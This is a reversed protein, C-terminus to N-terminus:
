KLCNFVCGGGKWFSTNGVPEIADHTKSKVDQKLSDGKQLM